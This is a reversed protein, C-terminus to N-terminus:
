YSLKIREALPSNARIISHLTGLCRCKEKKWPESFDKKLDVSKLISTDNFITYRRLFIHEDQQFLAIENPKPYHHKFLLIDSEFFYPHYACSKIQWAFDIEPYHYIAPLSLRATTLCNQFFYEGDCSIPIYCLIVRTQTPISSKFDREMEFIMNIAHQNQSSLSHFQKLLTRDESTFSPYFSQTDALDDLSCELAKAIRCMNEFSTQIKGASIKTLTSIPIRTLESLRELSLKRKTRIEDFHQKNM